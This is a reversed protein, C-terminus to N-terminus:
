SRAEPEIPRKLEEISARILPARSLLVVSGVLCLAASVRIVRLAGFSEALAGLLLSGLPIVGLFMTTMFSLVRGRYRDPVLSQVFVNTGITQIMMAIGAPVLILSAMRMNPSFSFAILIFAFAIGGVPILRASTPNWTGRAFLLAGLLAGFGSSALLRAYDKPQYEGAIESAVAPLLVAHPILLLSIMAVNLLIDRLAINARVFNVADTLNHVLGGPPPESPGPSLRMRVLSAIVVMYTLGNVLFFWGEHVIALFPAVLAPGIFRASSFLMSSLAIANPLDERGVMEIVLAQRTPLDFSVIIGLSVSFLGLVWFQSYGMFVFVALVLAQVMMLVQTIVVLQRRSHRDALVGALPGLVLIPIQGLFTIAGLLFPSETTRFVLNALATNQIWLGILSLAQGTFYWRYYQHRLAPFYRRAFGSQSGTDRPSSNM